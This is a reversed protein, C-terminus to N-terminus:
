CHMEPGEVLTESDTDEVLSWSETSVSEGDEDHSQEALTEDDDDV